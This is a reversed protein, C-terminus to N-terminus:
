SVFYSFCLITWLVMILCITVDPNAYFQKAAIPIFLEQVQIMMYTTFLYVFIHGILHVLIWSQSV